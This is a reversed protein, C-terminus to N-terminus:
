FILSRVYQKTKFGQSMNLMIKTLKLHNFFMENLELSYDNLNINFKRNM